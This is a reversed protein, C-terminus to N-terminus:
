TSHKVVQLKCTLFTISKAKEIKIYYSGHVPAPKFGTRDNPGAKTIFLHGDCQTNQTPGINPDSKAAYRWLYIKLRVGLLPFFTLSLVDSPSENSRVVAASGVVVV